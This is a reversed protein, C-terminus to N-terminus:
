SKIGKKFLLKLKVEKCSYPSKGLSVFLSCLLSKPMALVITADKLFWCLLKNTCAVQSNEIKNLLMKIITEESVSTLAFKKFFFSVTTYTCLNQVLSLLQYHCNKLLNGALNSFYSQLVNTIVPSEFKCVNNQNASNITQNLVKNVLSDHPIVLPTQCYHWKVAASREDPWLLFIPTM